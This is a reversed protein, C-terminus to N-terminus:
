SSLKCFSYPPWEGSTLFRLDSRDKRARAIRARYEDLRARAVLHAASIAMGETPCVRVTSERVTDSLREELWRALARAQRRLSEDCTVERRKAALFAAGPGLGESDSRALGSHTEASAARKVAEADWLIKVGMEIADRVRLLQDLLAREKSRIYSELASATTVMGFRFPLPTTRALVRHIINEHAFINERSVEPREGQFDSVVAKISECEILRAPAGAIGSAREILDGTVEDSLCYAYIKM